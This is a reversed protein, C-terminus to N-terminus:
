GSITVDASWVHVPFGTSDYVCLRVTHKQKVGTRGVTAYSITYSSDDGVKTGDIYWAYSSGSAANQVSFVYGGLIDTREIRVASGSASPIVTNQENGFEAKVWQAYLTIIHDDDDDSLGNEDLSQEDIYEVDQIGSATSWGIFSYGGRTFRNKQLKPLGGLNMFTFSQDNMTGNADSANKDYKITYDLAEWVAYLTITAGNETTLNKVSQENDYVKTGSSETAWGKFVLGRRTFNNKLLAQEEGYTFRQDAMTGQARLLNAIWQDWWSSGTADDNSNFHVTYTIPEWVAHLQIEANNETTLNGVFQGESYEVSTATSTTAWGAFQYGTLAFGNPSLTKYEDYTFTQSETSGTAGNAGGFSGRHFTVTYTIATWQAYLTLDEGFTGSAKNAYSTGTGDPSTNWGTFLYGTRSYANETLTVAVTVDPVELDLMVGEGGNPDFRILYSGLTWIAYLTITEGATSTLNNVAAGDSFNISSLADTDTSSVSSYSWGRFRYGTATFACPTLPTKADYFMEQDGMTGGTASAGAPYNPEFHICYSIPKWVAYLTVTAGDVTTLNRVTSEGKPYEPEPAEAIRAWGAFHYGTKTVGSSPLTVDTDYTCSIDDISGEGGNADFTISYTIAEWASAFLEAKQSTVILSRINGDEALEVTSPLEADGSLLYQWGVISYGPRLSAIDADTKSTPLDAAQKKEGIKFRKSVHVAATNEADAAPNKDYFIYESTSDEELEESLESTCSPLFFVLLLSFALPAFILKFGNM